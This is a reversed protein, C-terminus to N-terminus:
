RAAWGNTWRRAACSACCTPARAAATATWRWCAAMPWTRSAATSAASSTAWCAHAATACRMSGREFVLEADVGEMAPWNTGVDSPPVYALTVGQAQTSVRFLGASRPADYPFDALEGRLRV